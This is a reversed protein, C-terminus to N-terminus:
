TTSKPPANPRYYGSGNRPNDILGRSRLGTIASRVTNYKAILKAALKPATMSNEYLEDYISRQLDSLDSVIQRHAAALEPTDGGEHTPLGRRTDAVADAYAQTATKDASALHELPLEVDTESSESNKMKMALAELTPVVELCALALAAERGDALAVGATRFHKICAEVVHGAHAEITGLERVQRGDLLYAGSPDLEHEIDSALRPFRATFDRWTRSAHFRDMDLANLTKEISWPEERNGSSTTM